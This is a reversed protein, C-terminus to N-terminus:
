DGSDHLDLEGSSTAQTGEDIANQIAPRTEEPVKDLLGNLVEKNKSLHEKVEPNSLHDIKRLRGVSEKYKIAANSVENDKGEENLKKIEEARRDSVILAVKGKLSSPSLTLLAEESATKIPYLNDGPLSSQAAFVTSGGGILLLLLIAFVFRFFPFNRQQEKEFNNLVKERLIRKFEPDLLVEKELKSLVDELNKKDM